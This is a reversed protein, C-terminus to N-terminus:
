RRDDDVAEDGTAGEKVFAEYDMKNGQTINVLLTQWPKEQGVVVTEPMKGMVREIIWMAAKMKDKPDSEDANMITVLTGVAKTLNTKMADDARKFLETTMKRYVNRPVVQPGSGHFRGDKSKLQGRALEEEDLTSLDLTGNSLDIWRQNVKVFGGEQGKRSTPAHTGGHDSCRPPDSYRIALRSCMAEDDDVDDHEWRYDHECFVPEEKRKKRVRGGRSSRARDGKSFDGSDIFNPM